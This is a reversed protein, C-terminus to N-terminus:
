ISCSISQSTVQSVIWAAKSSFSTCLICMLCIVLVYESSVPAVVLGIGTQTRVVSLESCVAFLNFFTVPIRSKLIVM